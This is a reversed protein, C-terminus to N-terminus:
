RKIIEIDIIIEIKLNKIGPSTRFSNNFTRKFVKIIKHMLAGVIKVSVM